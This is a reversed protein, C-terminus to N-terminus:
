TSKSGKALCFGLVCAQSWHISLKNQITKLHPMCPCVEPQRNSTPSHQSTIPHSHPFTSIEMHKLCKRSAHTRWHISTTCSEEQASPVAYIFINLKGYTKIYTKSTAHLRLGWAPSQQSTLAPQHRSPFTPFTSIRMHKICKRSAHTRWHM